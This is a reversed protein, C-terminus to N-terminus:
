TSRDRPDALHTRRATVDTAFKIVKVPKGSRDFIPNYTAEIWVEAGSKTIRQFQDSQFVGRRLNDWFQRYGDSARDAATVFISHHKGRVEALEYGLLDLFNKNAEIITGDLEFEIVANSRDLADLVAQRDNNGIGLATTIRPMGIGEV